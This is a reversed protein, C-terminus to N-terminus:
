EASPAPGRQRPAGEPRKGGPRQGAPRQPKEGALLMRLHEEIKQEKNKEAEALRERQKEIGQEAKELRKRFEAQMKEAGEVLKARLAAVQEAKKVPDTENRAAEAMAQLEGYRNKRARMGARKEESIKSGRHDQRDHHQMGPHEGQRREVVPQEETKEKSGFPWIAASASSATFAGILIYVIWKKM